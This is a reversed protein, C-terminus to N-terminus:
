PPLVQKMPELPKPTEGYLRELLNEVKRIVFRNEIIADMLGTKMCVGLREHLMTRCMSVVILAEAIAAPDAIDSCGNVAAVAREADSKNCFQPSVIEDQSDIIRDMEDLKWPLNM